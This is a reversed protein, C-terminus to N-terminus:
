GLLLPPASPLSSVPSARHTPGCFSVYNLCLSPTSYCLLSDGREGRSGVEERIEQLIKWSASANWIHQLRAAASCSSVKDYKGTKKGERETGGSGERRMTENQRAAGEREEKKEMLQGRERGGEGAQHERELEM